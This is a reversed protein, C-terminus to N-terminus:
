YKHYLSSRKNVALFQFLSTYLLCIRFRQLYETPVDIHKGIYAEEIVIGSPGPSNPVLQFMGIILNDNELFSKADFAPSDQGPLEPIFVRVLVARYVFAEKRKAGAAPQPDDTFDRKLLQVFYPETDATSEVHNGPFTSDKKLALEPTRREM